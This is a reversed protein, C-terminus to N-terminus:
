KNTQLRMNLLSPRHYCSLISPISSPAERYGCGKRILENGYTLRGCRAGEKEPRWRAPADQAALPRRWEPSFHFLERHSCFIPRNICESRTNIKADGAAPEKKGAGLHPACPSGLAQRFGPQCYASVSM